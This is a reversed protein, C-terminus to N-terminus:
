EDVDWVVIEGMDSGVAALTGDPSFAAGRLRGIKWAFSRIVEWTTADYLLATADNSTAVLYKGTPHFAVATFHARTDTRTIRRAVELDTANWVSITNTRCTVFTQADPSFALVPATNAPLKASRLYQGREVGWVSLRALETLMAWGNRGPKADLTVFTAGDPATRIVLPHPAQSSHAVLGPVEAKWVTQLQEVSAWRLRRLTGDVGPEERVHCIIGTGDPLM